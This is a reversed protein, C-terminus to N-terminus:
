EKCKLRDAIQSPELGEGAAGHNTHHWMPQGPLERPEDISKGGRKYYVGKVVTYLANTQERVYTYNSDKDKGQWLHSVFGEVHDHSVMETSLMFVCAHMHASVCLQPWPCVLQCIQFFISSYRPFATSPLSVRPFFLLPHFCFHLSLSLHLLWSGDTHQWPWSCLHTLTHPQWPLPCGSVKLDRHVIDHQHIHNVSELIQSICHSRLSFLPYVSLCILWESSKMVFFMVYVGCSKDTMHKMSAQHIIAQNCFQHM